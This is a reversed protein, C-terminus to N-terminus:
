NDYKLARIIPHGDDKTFTSNRYVRMGANEISPNPLSGRERGQREMVEYVKLPKEHLASLLNDRDNLM